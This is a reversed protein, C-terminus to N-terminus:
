RKRASQRAHAARSEVREIFMEWWGLAATVAETPGYLDTGVLINMLAVESRGDEEPAPVKDFISAKYEKLVMNREAEILEWFLLHPFRDSKIRAFELNSAEGIWKSRLGDVKSLVHGVARLLTISAIWAMRIRQHKGAAIAQQLDDRSVYADRLARRAAIADVQADRHQNPGWTRM